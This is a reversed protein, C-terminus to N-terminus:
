VVNQFIKYLQQQRTKKKLPQQGTLQHHIHQIIKGIFITYISSSTPNSNCNCELYSSKNTDKPLVLPYKQM